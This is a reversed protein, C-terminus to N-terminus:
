MFFAALNLSQALEFGAEPGLVTLATAWGDADTCNEAVVSVSALEHSVPHGTRPDITHSRRDAGEGIFNRYDGSTAMAQNQLGVVEQVDRGEMQPREIGLRWASGSQNKGSAYVEGGIEVMLDRHGRSRLLAAIQDVGWGKAIASLDIRLEPMSKSLLGGDLQLKEFGVRSRLLAVQEESPLEQEGAPGFGWADVLPGVSIDFAGESAVSIAHARRLVEAFGESIPFPDTSLAGNFRSIESDPLYTSMSANVAELETAIAAGLQQQGPEDLGAGVVLIRYTTGMTPGTIELVDPLVPAPPEEAPRRVWLAGFLLVLFLAPLVIRRMAGPGEDEM